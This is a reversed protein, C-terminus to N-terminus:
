LRVQFLWVVIGLGVGIGLFVVLSTTALALGASIHGRLIDISANILPVGPVLLLVSAMLANQPTQSFWLAGSALLSAVLATFLVVLFYNIRRQHLWMRVWAATAAAAGTVALAAWDGGFLRCFAACALGVGIVIVGRAYHHPLNAIRELVMAFQAPTAQGQQFLRLLQEIENLNNMNVGVMPVRAIRTHHAEGRTATLLITKSMVVADIRDIGLGLGLLKLSGEVRAADAGHQLLLSGTQMLLDVATALSQSPGTVPLAPSEVSDACM